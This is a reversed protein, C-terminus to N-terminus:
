DEGPPPPLEDGDSDESTLFDIDRRAAPAPPPPDEEPVYVGYPNSDDSSSVISPPPPQVEEGGAPRSSTSAPPPPLLDGDDDLSGDSSAIVTPPPPEDDNSDSDEPTDFPPPPISDRASGRPSDQPNEQLADAAAPPPPPLSDRLSGRHSDTNTDQIMDPSPPLLEDSDRTGSSAEREDQSVAVRPSMNSTVSTNATSTGVVVSEETHSSDEEASGQRRSHTSGFWGASPVPALEVSAFEKDRGPRQESQPDEHEPSKEEINQLFDQQKETQQTPSRFEQLNKRVSGFGWNRAKKKGNQWPLPTPDWPTGPSSVAAGGSDKIELTRESEVQPQTDEEESGSLLMHASGTQLRILSPPVFSKSHPSSGRKARHPPEDREEVETGDVLIHAEGTKLRIMPPPAFETEKKTLAPEQDMSTDRVEVDRSFSVARAAGRTPRGQARSALPGAGKKESEKLQQFWEKFDEEEFQPYQKLLKKLKSRLKSKIYKKRPQRVDLVRCSVTIAPKLGLMYSTKELRSSLSLGRRIINTTGPVLTVGEALANEPQEHTLAAPDFRLKSKSSVIHPSSLGTEEKMNEDDHELFDALEYARLVVEGLVPCDYVQRSASRVERPVHFITVKLVRM